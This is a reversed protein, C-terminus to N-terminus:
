GTVVTSIYPSGMSVGMQIIWLVSTLWGQPCVRTEGNGVQVGTNAIEPNRAAETPYLEINEKEALESQEGDNTSSIEQANVSEQMAETVNSSDVQSPGKEPANQQSNTEDILEEIVATSTAALGVIPAQNSAGRHFCQVCVIALFIDWVQCIRAM